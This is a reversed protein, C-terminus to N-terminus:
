GLLGAVLPALDARDPGLGAAEADSDRAAALIRRLDGVALEFDDNVVV